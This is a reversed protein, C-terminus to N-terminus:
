GPVLTLRTTLKVSRPFSGRHGNLLLSPSGWFGDRCKSSLSVVINGGPISSCNNRLQAAWLRSAIGVVCIKASGNWHTSVAQYRWTVRSAYSARDVCTCWALFLAAWLSPICPRRRLLPLPPDMLFPTDYASWPSHTAWRSRDLFSDTIWDLYRRV